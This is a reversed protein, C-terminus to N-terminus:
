FKSTSNSCKANIKLDINKYKESDAHFERDYDIMFFSPSFSCYRQYNCYAFYLFLKEAEKQFLQQIFAMGRSLIGSLAYVTTKLLRKEDPYGVTVLNPWLLGPSGGDTKVHTLGLNIGVKGGGNVVVKLADEDTWFM